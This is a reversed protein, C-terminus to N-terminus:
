AQGYAASMLRRIDCHSIKPFRRRGAPIRRHFAFLPRPKPLIILLVSKIKCFDFLNRRLCSEVGCPADNWGLSLINYESDTVVAGVQRSLCGSNLKATMAIQMCRELKTPTLLGPHLILTVIRGLSRILPYDCKYDAEERNRTVFIDANEFCTM